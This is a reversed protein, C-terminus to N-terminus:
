AAFKWLIGLTARPVAEFFQQLSVHDTM